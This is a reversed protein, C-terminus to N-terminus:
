GWYNNLGRAAAREPVDQEDFAMVPLLEVDTVGLAKLYPIKEIVGVFTGHRAVRSTPHRTFGGVHMEYIIAQEMPHNLPEDGKWDYPDDDLVIGRMSSAGNDGPLSARRRDWLDHTVALAWPDLLVKEKDFRFGTSRTDGPGDIRWGYFTGPAVGVV